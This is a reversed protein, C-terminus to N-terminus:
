TAQNKENFIRDIEGEEDDRSIIWNDFDYNKYTKYKLIKRSSLKKIRNNEVVHINMGMKEFFSTMMDVTVGQEKLGEPWYEMLLVIDNNKILTREMGKLASYEAGQIDMKIFDVEFRDKIYDDFRVSKGKHIKGHGKFSYSRNDTNLRRSTYLDIPGNSDSVAIKNFRINKFKACVHKLYKFNQEDPEFVHVSGGNGVLRSFISSYFGINAGIDVVCNGPKIWKELLVVESRDKFSKYIFYIKKYLFFFHKYLFTALYFVLNNYM